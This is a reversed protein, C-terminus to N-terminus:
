DLTRIQADSYGQTRLNALAEVAQGRSSYPGTRVLALQGSTVVFGDLKEALKEANSRVSFAGVQVAFAGDAATKPAGQAGTRASSQSQATLETGSAARPSSAVPAQKDSDLTAIAEETPVAGSVQAQRPDGLAVSGQPPLRRKLVELLGSPTEMRLPAEHGARLAARHDEPPNVRRVRIPAGEAAGLQRLAGESLAILGDGHMPGRREVRVLITRGSDLSTVEVYSPLPLTRHAASIGNSAADDSALYGVQDYNMRDEPTYTVGDVIYPEGLVVPYDAAPGIASGAATDPPASPATGVCASLALPGALLM